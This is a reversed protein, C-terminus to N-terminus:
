RPRSQEPTTCGVLNVSTAERQTTISVEVAQRRPEGARVTVATEGVVSFDAAKAQLRCTATVDATHTEVEITATTRTPSVVDYGVLRSAVQPTSHVFAVWGLWALAAAAVMGGVALVLTRRPRAPRGYRAALDTRPQSDTTPDTV